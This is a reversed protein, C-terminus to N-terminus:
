DGVKFCTDDDEEDILSILRDHEISIEGIESFATYNSFLLCQEAGLIMTSLEARAENDICVAVGMGTKKHISAKPFEKKLEDFFEEPDGEEPFFPLPSEEELEARMKDFLEKEM